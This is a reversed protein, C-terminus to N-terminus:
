RRAWRAAILAIPLGVGFAHILVGNVIVYAPLPRWGIRSLPVVGFQMVVFAGLGFIMGCIVPRRVLLPIRTSALVYVLAITTAITLHLTVGLVATAAGGQYAAPGVLGSAISQFIRVPSVGRVGYLICADSLDLAGAVLGGWLVPILGGPHLRGTM